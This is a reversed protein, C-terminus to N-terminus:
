QAKLEILTVEPRAGIRIPYGVFGLGVNVYLAREGERYLGSWEPYFLESPSFGLIELQMAHTHGALMLDVSSDPLVEARWHHPNHSLLLTYAEGEAGALAESLRGQQGFQREGWNEVGAVVISDGGAARIVTHANNLMTWGMQAEYSQLRDVDAEREAETRWERNYHGYDHNGMVAFVGYRARLKALEGIFPWAEASRSNVLDGTFCVIDPRLHNVSEVMDSVVGPYHQLSGLHLDSIQVIRMGDFAKPLRSSEVVVRKVEIRRVGVAAGYIIAAAMALATASAGATMARRWGGLRRLPFVLVWYIVAFLLLPVYVLCLVFAAALFLWDDTMVAGSVVCMVLTLPSLLALLMEASWFIKAAMRARVAEGAACYLAANGAVAVVALAIILNIIMM